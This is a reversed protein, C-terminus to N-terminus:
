GAEKKIILSHIDNNSAKSAEPKLSLITHGLETVSLPVNKLPEIGRLRVKAIQGPQMKEILLKTKV